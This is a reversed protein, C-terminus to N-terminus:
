FFLLLYISLGKKASEITRYLISAEEHMEPMISLVSVKSPDVMFVSTESDDSTISINENTTNCNHSLIGNAGIISANPTALKLTTM